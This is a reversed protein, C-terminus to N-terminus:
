LSGLTWLMKVLSIIHTDTVWKWIPNMSSMHQTRVRIPRQSIFSPRKIRWIHYPGLLKQMVMVSDMGVGKMVMQYPAAAILSLPLTSGIMRAASPTITIVWNIWLALSFLCLRATSTAKHFGRKVAM